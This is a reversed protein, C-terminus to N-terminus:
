ILGDIMIVIFLVALYLLSFLYVKKAKAIGESIMLKWSMLSFIITGVGGVIGFIFSLPRVYYVSIGILILLIWTYAFIQKKTNKVGKVVPLMPIEARAYDDKILLSLAWFHPPTWFFVILFLLFPAPDMINGTIATWGVMPPIAGAAGGIVINNPTTRKLGITYIFVYILTAVM